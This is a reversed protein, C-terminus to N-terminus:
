IYAICLWICFILHPCFGLVVADLTGRVYYSVKYIDEYQKGDAATMVPRAFLGRKPLFPETKKKIIIIPPPPPSSVLPLLRFPRYVSLSVCIVLDLVNRTVTCFPDRATVLQEIITTFSATAGAPASAFTHPNYVADSGQAAVKM